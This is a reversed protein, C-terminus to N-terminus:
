RRSLAPRRKGVKSVIECYMLLADDVAIDLGGVEEPRVVATLDFDAVKADGLEAVCLAKRRATRVEGVVRQQLVVCIEREARARRCEERGLDDPFM